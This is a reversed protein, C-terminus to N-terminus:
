KQSEPNILLDVAGIPSNLSINISTAYKIAKQINESRQIIEPTASDLEYNSSRILEKKAMEFIEMLMKNTFEVFAKLDSLQHKERVLKMFNSFVDTKFIQLITGNFKASQINIVIAFAANGCEYNNNIKPGQAGMSVDLHKKYAKVTAVIFPNVVEVDLSVFKSAARTAEIPLNNEKLVDKLSKKIRFANIVGSKEMLISTEENVFVSYCKIKQKNLNFIVKFIERLNNPSVDEYHKYNYIILKKENEAFIRNAVLKLDDIYLKDMKQPLNIILYKGKDEITFLSTTENYHVNMLENIANLINDMSDSRDIISITGDGAYEKSSQLFNTFLDEVSFQIGADKIFLMPLKKLRIDCKILKYIKAFTKSNDDGPYYDYILVHYNHGVNLLNVMNTRMVRVDNEYQIGEIKYSMASKKFKDMFVKNSSVILTRLRYLLTNEYPNVEERPTM